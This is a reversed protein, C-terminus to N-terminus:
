TIAREALLARIAAPDDGADRYRGLLSFQRLYEPHGPVSEPQRPHWLHFMSGPVRRLPAVLAGTAYAFAGDCGGWVGDFREDFGGVQEWTARSFAIVNGSGGHGRAECKMTPAPLGPETRRLLENTSEKTLYLYENFAIVLGDAGEAQRLAERANRLSVVSDPDVQLFVDARSGEIARNIASPRTFPQPTSVLIPIDLQKWFRHTWGFSARRYPDGRDVYAVVIATNM